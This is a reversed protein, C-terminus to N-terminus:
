GAKVSSDEMQEGTMVGKRKLFRMIELLHIFQLSNPMIQHMVALDHALAALASAEITKGNEDKEVSRLLLRRLETEFLALNKADGSSGEFISLKSTLMDGPKMLPLFEEAFRTVFNYSLYTYSKEIINKLVSVPNETQVPFGQPWEWPIVLERMEGSHAMVALGLANKKYGTSTEYSKAKSEMRRAWAVVNQLPEKEHAIVMGMSATFESGLGKIDDAFSSRLEAAFELVKPVSFMALIDDGGSYILHGGHKEVLYPVTERAFKHMRRSLESHYAKERDEDNDCKLDKVWAPRRSDLWEGMSDGDMMLVAFYADQDRDDNNTIAPKGKGIERTSPFSKFKSRAQYVESFYDRATRKALCVGCLFEDDVIRGEFDSYPVEEFRDPKNYARNRRNWLDRLSNKMQGQTMTDSIDLALAEREGCVTCVPGKQEIYHLPRENKAAALRHEIRRRNESYSSTLPELAWYIEFFGLCQQVAMEELKEWGHHGGFVNEVARRAMHTIEERVHEAVRAATAATAAEDAYIIALFRNPYSAIMDPKDQGSERAPFIFEAPTGWESSKAELHEIATKIFYSLMYSGAWLDETKRASSIFSQVPGISFLLITKDSM